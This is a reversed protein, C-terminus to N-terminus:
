IGNGILEKLEQALVAGPQGEEPIVRRQAASDIRENVELATHAGVRDEVVTLDM